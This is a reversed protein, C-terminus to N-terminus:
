KPQTTRLSEVMDDCRKRSVKTKFTNWRQVRQEDLLKARLDIEKELLLTPLCQRIVEPLDIKEELLQRMLRIDALSVEQM